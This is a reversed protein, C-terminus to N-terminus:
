FSIAQKSQSSSAGLSLMLSFARKKDKVNLLKISCKAKRCTEILKVLRALAYAREIRKSDMLNQLDLAFAIKNKFALTALVHNVGTDLARLKDKGKTLDLLLCDFKGYELIKRNFDLSQSKVIIPKVSNRIEKRAQEINSTSIM